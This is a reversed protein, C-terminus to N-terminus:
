LHIIAFRSDKLIEGLIRQKTENMEKDPDTRDINYKGLNGSMVFYCGKDNKKLFLLYKSGKQLEKYNPRTIKSIGDLGQSYSVPEGVRIETNESIQGKIVRDVNVTTVTYFDQLPGKSALPSNMHERDRFAQETSGIVILDAEQFLEEASHYSLYLAPAVIVKENVASYVTTYYIMACLIAIAVGAAVRYWKRIALTGM